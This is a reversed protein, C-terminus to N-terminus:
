QSSCPAMNPSPRVEHAMSLCYVPTHYQGIQNGKVMVLVQNADPDGETWARALGIDAMPYELYTTGQQGTRCENDDNLANIVKPSTNQNNTWFVHPYIIGTNTSATLSDTYSNRAQTLDLSRKLPHNNPLNM